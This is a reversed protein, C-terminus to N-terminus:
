QKSFKETALKLALKQVEVAAEEPTCNEYHQVARVLMETLYKGAGNILKIRRHLHLCYLGLGVSIAGLLMIDTM